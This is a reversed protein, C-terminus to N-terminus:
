GTGRICGPPFGGACCLLGVASGILGTSTDVGAWGTLDTSTGMGASGTFCGSATGASGALGSQFASSGGRGPALVASIDLGATVLSFGFGATVESFGFGAGAVGGLNWIGIGGALPM